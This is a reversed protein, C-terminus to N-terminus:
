DAEAAAREPEPAPAPRRDSEVFAVLGLAFLLIVVGAILYYKM